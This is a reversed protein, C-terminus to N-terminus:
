KANGRLIDCFPARRRLKLSLSMKKKFAVMLINSSSFTLSNKKVLEIQEGHLENQAQLQIEVLVDIKKIRTGLISFQGWTSTGSQGFPSTALIVVRLSKHASNRQPM